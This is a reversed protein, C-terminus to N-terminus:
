VQNLTNQINLKGSGFQSVPFSDVQIAEQAIKQTQNLLEAEAKTIINKELAEKIKSQSKNKKMKGTKIAQSIKKSISKSKQIIDYATEFRAYPSGDELPYYIGQSMRERASGPKMSLMAVSTALSDSPMTTFSNLRAWPLAVYKFFHGIIPVDLNSYIGEFASQIQSFGHQAIYHVYAEEEKLKGDAEFRRLTCTILYMWSLIDAYRGTLKEKLKLKGGLTGMATDTLFAFSASVWSLKKYYSKFPTDKPSKALFGRTVSLLLARSMNKIIYVIHGSFAQDFLNLDNKELAIVEDYAYPHCRIAGQGFIIMTRTLINAGEVTISIPLAIYKRALINKPGQSIGAGGLVDMADNVIKRSLETSHYKVIASVVAPKIGSDVAAATFVRSAEMLYSFAGIRAIAENVGEFSGIPLGFQHRVQAYTGVLKNVAKAGGSAQSPLSISRGAALCEMLMQWGKGAGKVGGIIQDISVVVNKGELPSNIFPVGLPDHRKGLIVGQTNSPVLVCTIGLDKGKGLHEEPDYLKVAIGLLTAAAGLTIWRKQWNLKLYLKGDQDKYIIAESTISGADSGAQPETLGFCPIEEGRALRPLYHDKQDKTGYHILLEAPGLSNPVMTSIALPISYSGLKNIVQSHGLASFGLGEYKEPIILGFFKEKKMYAWVETPLDGEEYAKDDDMMKCLTECQNEIFSAEKKSPQPYPENMIKEFNPSGSFLDAEIWTSGAELAIKETQSIQPMLKLIKLAKMVFGTFFLKRTEKIYALILLVVTILILVKPVSLAWLTLTLFFSWLM